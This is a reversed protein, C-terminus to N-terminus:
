DDAAGDRGSASRVKVVPLNASRRRVDDDWAVAEHVWRAPDNVLVKALCATQCLREGNSCADIMFLWPLLLGLGIGQLTCSAELM